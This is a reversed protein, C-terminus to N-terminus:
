KGYETFRKAEDHSTKRRDTVDLTVWLQMYDCWPVWMSNNDHSQVTGAPYESGRFHLKIVSATNNVATLRMFWYYKHFFPSFVAAHSRSILLNPDVSTFIQLWLLLKTSWLTLKHVCVQSHSKLKNYFLVFIDYRWSISVTQLDLTWIHQSNHLEAEKM